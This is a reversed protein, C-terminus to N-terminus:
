LLESCLALSTTRPHYQQHGAGLHPRDHAWFSQLCAPVRQLPRWLSCTCLLEGWFGLGPRKVEWGEVPQLPSWHRDLRDLVFADYVTAKKWLVTGDKDSKVLPHLCTQGRSSGQLLVWGNWIFLANGQGYRPRNEAAMDMELQPQNASHPFTPSCPTFSPSPFRM